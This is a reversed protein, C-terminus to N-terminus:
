KEIYISLSEGTPIMDEESVIYAPDNCELATLAIDKKIQDVLLFPQVMANSKVDSLKKIVVDSDYYYKHEGNIVLKFAPRDNILVLMPDNSKDAMDQAEEYSSTSKCPM